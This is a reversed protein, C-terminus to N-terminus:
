VGESLHGHRRLPRRLSEVKAVDVKLFRVSASKASGLKFGEIGYRGMTRSVTSCDVEWRQALAKRTMYKSSSDPTNKM